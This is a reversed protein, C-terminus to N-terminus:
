RNFRVSLNLVRGVYNVDTVIAPTTDLEFQRYWVNARDYVNFVSIGLDGGCDGLSFRYRASLDLRHYAPLRLGNKASVNIYSFSSGDLLQISYEGQPATYPTGSGFTWTSALDWRGLSLTGVAKLEHLQDHLAPFSNGGNLEPFNNRM